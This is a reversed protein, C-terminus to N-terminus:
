KTPTPSSCPLIWAQGRIRLNELHRIEADQPPYIHNDADYATYPLKAEDEERYVGRTGTQATTM